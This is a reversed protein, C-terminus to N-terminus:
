AGAADDRAPFMLEVAATRGPIGDALARLRHAPSDPELARLWKSGLYAFGRSAFYALFCREACSRGLHLALMPSDAVATRADELEQVAGVLYWTAAHIELANGGLLAGCHREFSPGRLLTWASSTAQATGALRRM